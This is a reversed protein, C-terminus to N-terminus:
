AKAVKSVTDWTRTTVDKGFTKEILKMFVPGKASVVYASFVERGQVRLIKSGDLKIPLKVPVPEDRLFTVIRKAKPALRFVKFPDQALFDQLASVPRIFTAFSKGLHKTMAAEAQRALAKESKSNANFVVNGSSLLTKVETFGAAEFAAKLAPM